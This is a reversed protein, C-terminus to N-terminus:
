IEPTGNSGGVVTAVDYKYAPFHVQKLQGGV